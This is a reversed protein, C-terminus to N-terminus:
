VPGATGVARWIGFRSGGPRQSLQDQLVQEIFPALEVRLSDKQNLESRLNAERQEINGQNPDSLLDALESQLTSVENRLNLYDLILERKEQSPLYQNVKLTSQVMKRALASVTWSVFDFEYDRSYARIQELEETPDVVSGQIPLVLIVVILLNIVISIRFNIKKM